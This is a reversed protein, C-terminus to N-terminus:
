KRRAAAPSKVRVKALEVIEGVCGVGLVRDRWETATRRDIREGHAAANRVGAFADLVVPLEGTFWAGYELAGRL